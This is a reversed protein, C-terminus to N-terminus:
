LLHLDFECAQIIEPSQKIGRRTSRQLKPLRGSIHCNVLIWPSPLSLHETSHKFHWEIGPASESSIWWPSPVEIHELQLNEKIHNGSYNEHKIQIRHEQLAISTFTWFTRWYFHVLINQWSMQNKRRGRITMEEDDLRKLDPIGAKYKSKSKVFNWFNKPNTKCKVAIDKELLKQAKRPLRRVQNRTKGQDYIQPYADRRPFAQVTRQKTNCAKPQEGNNQTTLCPDPVTNCIYSRRM